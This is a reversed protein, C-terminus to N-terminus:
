PFVSDVEEGRIPTRHETQESCLGGMWHLLKIQFTATDSHLSTYLHKNMLDNCNLYSSKGGNQIFLSMEELFNQM